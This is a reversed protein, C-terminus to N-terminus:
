FPLEKSILGDHPTFYGEGSPLCICLMIDAKKPRCSDCVLIRSSQDRTCNPDDNDIVRLCHRCQDYAIGRGDKLNKFLIEQSYM